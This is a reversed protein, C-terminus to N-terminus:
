VRVVVTEAIRDGLRQEDDSLVVLVAGVLYFFLGDVLRLVNRVLAASGDITGGSEDVVRIQALRKGVTQGYRAELGVFYTGVVVTTGVFTVLAPLGQLSFGTETVGGTTSAVGYGVAWFAVFSVAVDLIQAVARRGLGADAREDATREDTVHEDTMREGIM